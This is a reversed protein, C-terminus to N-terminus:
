YGWERFLFFGYVPSFQGQTTGFTPANRAFRDEKFLELTFPQLQWELRVSPDGGNAGLRKSLGLYVDSGGLYWGLELQTGSFFDSTNTQGPVTAVEATTLSVYDLVGASQALTQLGSSAYGLLSPAFVNMGFGTLGSGSESGGPSSIFSGVEWTPVGFFLYSALDSESIPPEEDSSLRVRPNQLTGSVQAVIDLTENRARGRYTATIALNPDIGPTGPFEITGNRVQFRRAQLPPYVLQYTGRVVDLTGSLRLDDARRDFAVTLDGQVEVDLDQGRLWSDSVSIQSNRVNLNELFPNRGIPIVRRRAVLSTDVLQFVRASDLQVVFFQRYLEDLFLTGRDVRLTATVDPARYSGGVQVIGTMIGEVDRRRAALVRDADLKLDLAPDDLRTFDLTGTVRGTGVEGPQLLGRRTERTTAEAEVQVLRDSVLRFSGNLDEYRVGTASWSAAVGRARLEGSLTPDLTTGIAQLTGHLTGRVDSFGSLFPLVQAAPLSDAHLVLSLPEDLRREALPTLRLDVPARGGGTLIRRRDREAEFFLEAAGAEYSLEAFGRELRMDNWALGTGTLDGAIIPDLASGTFRLGGDLRGAATAPRHTLRLLDAFPVGDLEVRFDLAPPSEAGSAAWGLIGAARLAAGQGDRLELGALQLTSADVRAFATDALSWSQQAGLSLEQLALGTTGGESLVDARLRLREVGPDGGHLLLSTFTGTQALELRTARLVHGYAAASDAIAELRLGRGDEDLLRTGRVTGSARALRLPGAVLHHLEGEAYLALSDLSGTLLAHGRGGGALRPRDPDPSGSFLNAEWPSLSESVLQLRLAGDRGAVLGLTGSGDLDAGTARVMVTDVRVLGDGFRAALRSRQVPLRGIRASDLTVNLTGALDAASRGALDFAVVGSLSANPLREFFAHMQFSGASAEGVYHPGDVGRALRAQLRLPGGATGLEADLALDDLNGVLHIPGSAYGDLGQLAPYRRALESLALTRANVEIDVHRGRESLMGDALLDSTAGGTQRHRLDATFSLDRALRGSAEIRGSVVGELDLGPELGNLLALDFGALDARLRRAGYRGPRADLTGAFRIVGSRGRPTSLELDGETEIASLPGKVEVTGVLLGEVPLGGPLLRELLSVDLPSARLDVRTFYTTDGTVIGFTGAVNTGETRIRANEAFWLTGGQARQSQIRLRAAGSGQEPLQPYVWQLDAFAFRDTDIQLDYYNQGRAQVVHGYIAARTAPLEVRSFDLTVTSDRLAVRGQADRLELPDRFVYGRGSARRIEFFRGEEIPSEWIVRSLDADINEFRMQKAWGGPLREIVSRATDAPEITGDRGAPTLVTASGGIVRTDHFMVLSRRRPRDPDDPTTDRFIYQYNWATDGPLQELRVDPGYLVVRDLVIQGSVLTRWNYNAAISDAHLFRRDREDVITVGHLVLGRLLGSGSIRSVTVNGQVRDDLWALAFRRAREHGWDTRTMLQIAIFALILGALAGIGIYAAIRTGRRM